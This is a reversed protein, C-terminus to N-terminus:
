SRRKSLSKNSQKPTAKRRRRKARRPKLAKEIDAVVREPDIPKRLVARGGYRAIRLSVQKQTKESLGIIPLAPHAQSLKKVWRYPERDARDLDLMIAKMSREQLIEAVMEPQFVIEPDFGMSELAQRLPDIEELDDHIILVRQRNM